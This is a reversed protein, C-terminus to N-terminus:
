KTVPFRDVANQLQYTPPAPELNARLDPRHRMETQRFDRAFGNQFLLADTKGSTPGGVLTMRNLSDRRVVSHDQEGVKPPPHAAYASPRYM